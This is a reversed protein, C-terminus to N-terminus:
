GEVQVNPVVVQPQRFGCGDVQDEKIGAPPTSVPEIHLPVERVVPRALRLSARLSNTDMHGFVLDDVPSRHALHSRRFLFRHLFRPPLALM